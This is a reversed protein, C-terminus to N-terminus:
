HYEFKGQPPPPIPVSTQQVSTITPIANVPLIGPSVVISPQPVVGPLASTPNIM